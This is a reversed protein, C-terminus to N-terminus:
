KIKDQAREREIAKQMAGLKIWQDRTLVGRMELLMLGHATQLNARAEVVRAIQGTAAKEDFEEVYRELLIEAQDLTKKLARQSPVAAQFIEELRRVQDPQLGLERQYSESNWWKPPSSQNQSASAPDLVAFVAALVIALRGAFVTARM